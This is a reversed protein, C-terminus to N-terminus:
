QMQTCYQHIFYRKNKNVTTTVLLSLTAIAHSRSSRANMATKGTARAKAAVGLLNDVELQDKVPWSSMGELLTEGKANERMILRNPDKEPQDKEKSPTRNAGVEKINLNKRGNEKDNDGSQTALSYLLDYCEEKYIELYSLELEVIAGEAELQTKRKFIDKVSFNMIGDPTDRQIFSSGMMHTKGSGTQGYAFVTATFGQFFHDILPSILSDYIKKTQQDNPGFIWEFDHGASSTSNNFVLQKKEVTVVSKAGDKIEADVLPRIVIGVQVKQTAM